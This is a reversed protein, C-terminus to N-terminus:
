WGAALSPMDFSGQVAWYKKLSGAAWVNLAGERDILRRNLYGVGFAFGSGTALSGFKPHFGDRGFTTLVRHEVTNMARELGNPEYPVLTKQKDERARKLIEARTETTTPSSQAFAGAPAAIAVALSICACFTISRAM